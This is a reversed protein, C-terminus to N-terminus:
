IARLRELLGNMTQKLRNLRDPSITSDFPELSKGMQVGRMALGAKLLPLNGHETAEALEDVMKQLLEAKVRDGAQHARYLKVFLEPLVNANGSISGKAGAEFAQAILDDSGIFVRRGGDLIELYRKTLQIDGQSDKIGGFNPYRCLEAVTEPSIANRAFAPINYLFLCAEPGVVKLISKYYRLIDRDSFPYYFPPIASLYVAGQKQAEQAFACCESVPLMGVHVMVPIRGAAAKLTYRLLDLKQRKTLLVSEGTTGLAYLGNVGADIFYDVLEWVCKEKVDGSDDVPTVM